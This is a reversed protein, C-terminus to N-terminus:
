GHRQQEVREVTLGNKQKINLVQLGLSTSLDPHHLLCCPRQVLVQEGTALDWGLSAMIKAAEGSPTAATGRPPVRHKHAVRCLEPQECCGATGSGEALGWVRRAGGPSLLIRGRAARRSNGWQWLSCPFRPCLFQDEAGLSLLLHVSM